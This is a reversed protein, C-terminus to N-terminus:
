SSLWVAAGLPGPNAHEKAGSVQAPDGRAFDRQREAAPLLRAHLHARRQLGRHTHELHRRDLREGLHEVLEAIRDGLRRGDCSRLRRRNSSIRRAARASSTSTPDNGCASLTIALAGFLLLSRMMELVDRAYTKPQYNAPKPDRDSQGRGRVDPVIVRRGGQAILPAVDEFDKSNRTLGHLCIVPLRAGGGAGAYDRAFLGLGDRSTWRRETYAAM